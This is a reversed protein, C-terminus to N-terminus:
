LVDSALVYMKNFLCAKDVKSKRKFVKIRFNRM